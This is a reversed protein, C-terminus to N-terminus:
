SDSARENEALRQFSQAKAASSLLSRGCANAAIARIFWDTFYRCFAASHKSAALILIGSLLSARSIISSTRSV